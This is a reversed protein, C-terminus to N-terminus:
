ILKTKLREINLEKFKQLVEKGCSTFYTHKKLLVYNIRNWETDKYFKVLHLAFGRRLRQGYSPYDPKTFHYLDADALIDAEPSTPNQPFRTAEISALVQSVNEAPYNQEELFDEAIAKSFDEHNVYAKIYGCDHFWTALAVVELQMPTCCCDGAIEIAARVVEQTRKLNHFSMSEPLNGPLVNLVFEQVLDTVSIKHNM